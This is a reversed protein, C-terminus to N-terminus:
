MTRNLHSLLADAQHEPVVCIHDHDPDIIDVVRVEGLLNDIWATYVKGKTYM